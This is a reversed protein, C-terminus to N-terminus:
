YPNKFKLAYSRPSVGYKKKFCKAFYSSDNFGSKFAVETINGANKELLHTAHNLRISLIYDSVSMGTLAKIKRFLQSRSMNMSNSFEEVSWDANVLNQEIIQIAKKLFCEDINSVEVCEDFIGFMKSYKEKLKQRQLILNNIRTTLEEIKFPKELYDDAGTQLGEIRNEVSAKATLIIIPIHSTRHDKKLQTCLSLGDLKPMMLDTVILDPVSNCAKTWGEAGDIALEISYFPELNSKLFVRM